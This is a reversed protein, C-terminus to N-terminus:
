HETRRQSQLSPFLLSPFQLSPALVHDTTDAGTAAGRVTVAMRDRVRELPDYLTFYRALGPECHRRKGYLKVTLAAGPNVVPRGQYGNNHATLRTLM